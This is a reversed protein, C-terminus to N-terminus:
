CTNYTLQSSILVGVYLDYPNAYIRLAAWQNLDKPWLGLKM